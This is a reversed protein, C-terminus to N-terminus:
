SSSIPYCNLSYCTSRIYSCLMGLSNLDKLLDLKCISSIENDALLQFLLTSDDTTAVPHLSLTVFGNIQTM